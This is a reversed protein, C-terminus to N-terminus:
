DQPQILSNSDGADYIESKAVVTYYNSSGSVPVTQPCCVMFVIMKATTKTPKIEARDSPAAAAV